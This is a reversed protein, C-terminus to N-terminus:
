IKYIIIKYKKRIKALPLVDDKEEFLAQGIM